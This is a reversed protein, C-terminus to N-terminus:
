KDLVCTLIDQLKSILFFSVDVFDYSDLVVDGDVAYTVINNM